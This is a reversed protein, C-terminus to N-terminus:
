FCGPEKNHVLVGGAFYNHYREVELNYTGPAGPLSMLSGVGGEKVALATGGESIQLLTDGISLNDARVWAGNAHFPHNGTARLTGNVLLTGTAEDQHVFTRTVTAPVIRVEDEDFALVVDGVVVREIARSSGDAMSIPTGAAFCSGCEDCIVEGSEPDLYCGSGGGPPYGCDQTCRGAGSVNEASLCYGDGCYSGCHADYKDQDAAGPEGPNSSYGCEGNTAHSPELYGSGFDCESENGNCRGDGIVPTYPPIAASACPGNCFDLSASLAFHDSIYELRVNNDNVDIHEGSVPQRDVFVNFRSTPKIGVAASPRYLIYDIRKNSSGSRSNDVAYKTFGSTLFPPSLSPEGWAKRYVDVFGQLQGGAASCVGDANPGCVQNYLSSGGSVNLDGMLVVAQNALNQDIWSRMQSLQDLCYSEEKSTHTNIMYIPRQLNPLQIRQVKFGKAQYTSCEDFQVEGAASWPLRSLGSLGGDADWDYWPGVPQGWYQYNYGGCSPGCKERIHNRASDDFTEQLAVVDAWNLLHGFAMNGALRNGITLGRSEDCDHGSCGGPYDDLEEMKVNFTTLKITDSVAGPCFGCDARCVACTETSNCVGDGCYYTPGPPVPEDEVPPLSQALESVPESEVDVVCAGIAMLVGSFPIALRLGGRACAGWSLRLKSNM